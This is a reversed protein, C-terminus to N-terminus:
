SWSAWRRLYPLPDLPKGGTQWPGQWIEFHLHAGFSAGTNGLRGLLQGTLVRQGERVVISGRQLHMFAYQFREGSGALIVYHGAGEPQNAVTTVIGGRPAVIPLGEAGSIDQGQHTRGPRDAGFRGGEGGLEYPGGVPFRHGFIGLPPSQAARPGRRIRNRRDDRGTLRLVYRGAPVGGRFAYSSTRNAPRRGLDISRVPKRSGPRLLNLRLTVARRGPARVKFTVRAAAGYAFMRRRNVSFHTLVPAPSRKIERKLERDGHRAGGNDRERKAEKQDRPTEPTAGGSGAAAWASTPLSLVLLLVLFRPRM